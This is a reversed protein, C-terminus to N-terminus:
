QKASRSIVERTIEVLLSPESSLAELNVADSHKLLFDLCFRKLELAQYALSFVDTFGPAGGGGGWGV